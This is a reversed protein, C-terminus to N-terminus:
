KTSSGDVSHYEYPGLDTLYYGLFPHFVPPTAPYARNLKALFGVLTRDRWAEYFLGTQAKTLADDEFVTTIEPYKYNSIVGTENIIVHDLQELLPVKHVDYYERIARATAMPDSRCETAFIFCPVTRAFEVLHPPASSSRLVPSRYRRLIKVSRVQELAEELNKQRSLDPKIEIACDVGDAFVLSFKEEADVTYPHCPNIILCDVSCSLEGFSDRVKSKTLRHPFPYYRRLFQRFCNERLDAVEQSTGKGQLSAKEFGRTLEEAEIRLHQVLDDLAM